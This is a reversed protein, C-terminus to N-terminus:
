AGEVVYSPPSTSRPHYSLIIRTDALDETFWGRGKLDVVEDPGVAVAQEPDDVDTVVM